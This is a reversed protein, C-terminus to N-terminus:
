IPSASWIRSKSISLALSGGLLCWAKSVLSLIVGLYAVSVPNQEQLHEHGLQRWTLVM